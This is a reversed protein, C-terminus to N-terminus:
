TVRFEDMTDSNGAIMFETCYGFEINDTDIPERHVHEPVDILDVPEDYDEIGALIICEIIIFMLGKGGADVVGAQKLVPLM